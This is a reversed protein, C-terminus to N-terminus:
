FATQQTTLSWSLAVLCNTKMAKRNGRKTTLSLRMLHSSLRTSGRSLKRLITLATKRKQRKAQAQKQSEMTLLASKPDSIPKKGLSGPPNSLRVSTQEPTKQNTTIPLFQCLSLLNITLTLLCISFKSNKPSLAPDQPGKNYFITRTYIFGQSKPKKKFSSATSQFWKADLEKRKM